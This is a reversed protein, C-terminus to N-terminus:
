NNASRNTGGGASPPVIQEGVLRQLANAALKKRNAAATYVAAQQPTSHGLVAMIELDGAGAEGLATALYKRIGHASCQPLGAADHDAGVSHDLDITLEDDGRVSAPAHGASRKRSASGAM